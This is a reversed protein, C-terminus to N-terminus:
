TQVPVQRVRTEAVYSTESVTRVVPRSVFVRRSVTRPPCQVAVTAFAKKKHHLCGLLGHPRSCPDVPVPVRRQVIPGPVVEMQTEYAGCEQVVERQTVVPRLVKYTQEVMS